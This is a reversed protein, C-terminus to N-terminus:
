FYGKQIKHVDEARWLRTNDRLHPDVQYLLKAVRQANEENGRKNQMGGEWGFFHEMFSFLGQDKMLDSLGGEPM